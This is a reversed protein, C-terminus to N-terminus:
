CDNSSGNSARGDYDGHWRGRYVVVVIKNTVSFFYNCCNLTWSATLLTHWNGFTDTWHQRVIALWWKWWREDTNGLSRRCLVVYKYERYVVL